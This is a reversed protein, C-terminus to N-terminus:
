ICSFCIYERTMNNSVEEGDAITVDGMLAALVDESVAEPCNELIWPLCKEFTQGYECFEPPLTCTPCYKLKKPKTFDFPGEVKPESKSGKVVKVNEEISETDGNDENEDFDDDAMDSPEFTLLLHSKDSLYYEPVVNMCEEHKM